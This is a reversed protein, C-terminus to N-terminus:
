TEGPTATWCIYPVDWTMTNSRDVGFGYGVPATATVTFIGSILDDGNLLANSANYAGVTANRTYAVNTFVGLIDFVPAAGLIPEHANLAGANPNNLVYPYSNLVTGNDCSSTPVSIVTIPLPPSCSFAQTTCSAGDALSTNVSCSGTESSNGNSTVRITAGSTNTISVLPAPNSYPIESDSVIGGSPNSFEYPGAARVSQILSGGGAVSLVTAGAIVAVSLLKAIRGNANKRWATVGILAGLIGIGAMTLGPVAAAATPAQGLLAAPSYGVSIQCFGAHQAFAAGIGSFFVGATKALLCATRVTRNAHNM